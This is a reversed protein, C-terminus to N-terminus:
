KLYIKRILTVARHIAAPWDSVARMEISLSGRYGSRRLADALAAHDVGSTGLPALDPESVHAHPAYRAAKLLIEPPEQELFLTGTDIQLGVGPMEIRDLLEMAEATTTVFRCAYHRANPEITLTSGESAFVPGIRRFFEVAIETAREPALDGPDRLKPAGFVCAKAGLAGAMRAVGVLHEYLAERADASSFLHVPGANYVIGQMAACHIGRNALRGHLAVVDAPSVDWRGFVNYPAIEIAGIDLENLLAIAADLEGPPVAINSVSLEPKAPM